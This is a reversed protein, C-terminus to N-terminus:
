RRCGRHAARDALGAGAGAEDEMQRRHVPEPRPARLVEVVDVDAAREVHQAGGTGRRALPDDVGARDAHEPEVAGGVALGRVLGAVGVDRM